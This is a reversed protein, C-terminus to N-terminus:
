LVINNWVEATNLDCSLIIGCKLMHTHLVSSSPKETTNRGQHM